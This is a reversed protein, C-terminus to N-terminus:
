DPRPGRLSEYVRWFEDRENPLFLRDGDGLRQFYPKYRAPVREELLARAKEQNELGEPTKVRAYFKVNQGINFFLTDQVDAPRTAVIRDVVGALTERDHQYRMAIARAFFPDSTGSTSWNERMLSPQARALTGALFLGCLSAHVLIAATRALPRRDWLHDLAVAAAMFVFPYLPMLYRFSSVWHRRADIQFDSFVFAFVFLPIYALFLVTPHITRPETRARVLGAAARSISDRHVWAAIGCLIALAIWVVHGLAIGSLGLSNPLYVSEALDRTVLEAFVEGRPRHATDDLFHDFISRGYISIGHNLGYILLPSLGVVFGLARWAFSRRLFFRKDFLFDFALLLGVVLLIGFGFYIAFGTVVGLLFSTRRDGPPSGREVDGSGRLTAYHHTLFLFVLVIAQLNNEIHTGYAICSLLAYGPPAVALLLTGLWAARRSVFRDLVLFLFAVSACSILLVSMRLAVITPGFVWFFPVALLTVVLSGGSFDNVQYDQFPLVPGDLLDQASSGRVLEEWGGIAIYGPALDVPPALIVILRLIATLAVLALV